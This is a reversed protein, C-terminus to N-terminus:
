HGPHAQCGEADAQQAREDNGEEIYPRRLGREQTIQLGFGEVQTEMQAPRFSGVRGDDQDDDVIAANSLQSAPRPAPLAKGLDDLLQVGGPSFHDREIQEKGFGLRGNFPCQQAAQALCKLREIDWKVGGLALCEIM